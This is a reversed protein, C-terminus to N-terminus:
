TYRLASRFRGLEQTYSVAKCRPCEIRMLTQLKMVREGAGQAPDECLAIPQDCANCRAGFYWCDSKVQDLPIVTLAIEQTDAM